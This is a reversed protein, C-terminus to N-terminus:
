FLNLSCWHSKSAVNLNTFTTQLFLGLTLSPDFNSESGIELRFLTRSVGNKLRRASYVYRKALSVLRLKCTTPGVAKGIGLEQSFSFFQGFRAGRVKTM